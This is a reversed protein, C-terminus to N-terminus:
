ISGFIRKWISQRKPQPTPKPEFHKEEDQNSPLLQINQNCVVNELPLSALLVPLQRSQDCDEATANSSYYVTQSTIKELYGLELKQMPINEMATAWIKAAGSAGTLGTSQNDDRGVWVVTLYNGSFGAFWSDRYNDTTGTKGAVAYDVHSANVASRGTGSRMVEQLAYNILYNVEPEVVQEVRLSYRSLPENDNTLLSRISKIPTKFGGSALSLYLQSVDMVSMPVAGLLMSPLEPINDEYGLRNITSIVNSVGLDMGLQVTALNYSKALADVLLVKGYEQENYNQPRWDESGAQEVVISKDEILSALSYRDTKELATLYVFPKLLSGVPRRATVARNFGSISNQRDGIVAAVEGNDTRIVTAAVQLTGAEISRSQEINDLERQVSEELTKQIRPNLTTYIQLGDNLLDEQQYEDKLNERVLGMFSPYSLPAAREANASINIETALAQTYDERTIKADDLMAQLVLNRREKAREPHRVPNYYSSGKLIGALLAFEALELEQLPRGYFYQSGLEFGHIARNGVQALHIENIYAQLIEDKSYHVELLVSMIAENFKRKLTQESSLYYNKVLQQTLTSGGQVVRGALMNNILARIIGLPNLGFHSYFHKDEIALLADILGQPVDELKLLARDEHSLPSVSGFLRPELRVIETAQGNVIISQIQGNRFDITTRQAARLGDWFRFQRQFIDLKAGTFNYTGVRDVNNKAQYGLEDLEQELLDFDLQQGIYIEMPRTYVHAPLAWKQGEFKNRIQVDLYATYALLGVAGIICLRVFWFLSVSLWASKNQPKKASKEKSMGKKNNTNKVKANTKKTAM